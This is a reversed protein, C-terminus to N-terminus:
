LRKTSALGGQVQQFNDITAAKEEASETVVAIPTHEPKPAAGDGKAVSAHWYHYGADSSAGATTESSAGAIAESPAGAAPGSGDAEAM